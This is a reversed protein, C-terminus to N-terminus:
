SEFYKRTREYEAWQGIDFWQEELVPYVSITRGDKLLDGILETMDEKADPKIYGVIDKEAVYVGTNIIHKFAPKEDINLLFGSDNTNLVGYPVVSNKICGVITLVAKNEVHFKLIKDMDDEILIDSNSIFFTGSISERALYLSGITGLPRDEKIYRIDAYKNKVEPDNFYLRIMESKYNVSLIFEDFGYAAFRDMIKELIPQEGVPVLPKPLIKTFPELRTGEGGALIFVKNPKKERLVKKGANFVDVWLAIDTVRGEDDLVPLSEIKFKLMLEKTRKTRNAETRRIYKPNKNMIDAICSDLGSGGLLARRIDGDTLSGQLRKEGDVIYLVKESTENLQKMANRVSMNKLILLKCYDTM